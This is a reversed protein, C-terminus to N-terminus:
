LWSEVIKVDDGQQRGVCHLAARRFISRLEELPAILMADTPGGPVLHQRAVVGHPYDTPRDYVTWLNFAGRKAANDQLKLVFTVNDDIM